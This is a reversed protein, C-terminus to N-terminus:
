SRLGGRTRAEALRKMQVMTDPHAEGLVREFARAVHELHPIAESAQGNAMMAAGLDARALVQDSTEKATRKMYGALRREYLDQAAAFARQETLLEAWLALARLTMDHEEGLRMAFGEAAESSLTLAEGALGHDRLVAGLNYALMLVEQDDAGKLATLERLAGRLLREGGARDGLKLLTLGLNNRGVIVSQLDEGPRAELQTVAREQHTRARAYDGLAYFLSGLESELVPTLASTFSARTASNFSAWGTLDSEM